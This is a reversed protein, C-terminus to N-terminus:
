DFDHTHRTVVLMLTLGVEAVKDDSSRGAPKGEKGGTALRQERM